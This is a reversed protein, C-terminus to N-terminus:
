LRGTFQKNWEDPHFSHANEPKKPEFRVMVTDGPHFSAYYDIAMDNFYAREGVEYLVVAHKNPDKGTLTPSWIDVIRGYTFQGNNQLHEDDCKKTIHTYISLLISLVLISATTSKNKANM